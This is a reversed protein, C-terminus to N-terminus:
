RIVACAGIFACHAIVSTTTKLVKISKKIFCINNTSM